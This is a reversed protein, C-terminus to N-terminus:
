ALKPHDSLFNLISKTDMKNNRPAKPKTKLLEGLLIM